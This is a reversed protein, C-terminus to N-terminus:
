RQEHAAWLRAEADADMPGGGRNTPREPLGERQLWAWTDAVTQEIPRCSLGAAFAASVDCDHLGAYEGTPPLWIPLETWPAVGAAEITEPTLWVLDAHAGTVENCADLVQGITAHGPRSVTNFTGVPRSGLVWEAIDRCDVYQLPRDRPGPAPVRGGPGAAAIRNLWFPMRGVIEYPGLILGARAITVDGAFESLVALEGGRKAAAYDDSETSAPDGDVVPASEDSGVEVPWSYVSRSSIYCYSGARGSLLRASEQVAVPALSWTDVVADWEDEVLAAALSGPVLRDAHRTEAGATDPGSVGRNVTTVDDGRALAAEVFARGVHHTGGLVLLRM